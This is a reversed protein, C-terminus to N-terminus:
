NSQCKESHLKNISCSVPKRINRIVRCCSLCTLVRVRNRLWSMPSVGEIQFPGELGPNKVGQVYVWLGKNSDDHLNRM